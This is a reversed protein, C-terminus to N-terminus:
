RIYVGGFPLLERLARRVIGDKHLQEDLQTDRFGTQMLVPGKGTMEWQVNMNQSALQNGYVSLKISANEPYAVLSGAEVFLPREPHLQLTALAGSTILGLIGPGTFRMRVWERTIWVNKITQVKSKMTLGDSYFLVHRFDFLLDSEEPIDIADLMCGPPLGVILEAPGQLRSRILKKKRYMGAFDMLRDERSQPNGQYALLAQPHLLQIADSDDLKIHIHGVNPPTTINM